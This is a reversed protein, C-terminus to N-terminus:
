GLSVAGSPLNPPMTREVTLPAGEPPRIEVSLKGYPPLSNATGMNILVIAKESFELVSDYNVNKLIVVYAEPSTPSTTWITNAISNTSLDSLNTASFTTGDTANYLYGDTSNYYLIGKYINEFSTGGVIVGITVRSPALDVASVGASTKIPVSVEVIHTSNSIGLVSGDVELATSAEGLGKGIVEKSKQTTFLGMNLAVFALAAAVIVFAILVIAAEIGVIGRKKRENSRKREM